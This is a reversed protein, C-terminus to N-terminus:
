GPKAEYAGIGVILGNDEASTLIYYYSNGAAFDDTQTVEVYGREPTLYTLYDSAAAPLIGMLVIAIAAIFRLTKMM